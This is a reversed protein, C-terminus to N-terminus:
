SADTSNSHLDLLEKEISDLHIQYDARKKENEQKITELKLKLEDINDTGWNKKATEKHQALQQQTTKLETEVRIKQDYLHKYRKHLQEMSQEHQPTNM